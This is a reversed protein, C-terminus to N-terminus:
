IRRPEEAASVRRVVGVNRRNREKKKAQRLCVHKRENRLVDEGGEDKRKESIDTM